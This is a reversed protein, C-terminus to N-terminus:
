TDPVRGGEYLTDIFRSLRAQEEPRIRIFELGFVRGEAWRVEARDVDVPVVDEPLYLRLEMQVGPYLRTDSEFQCGGMSLNRVTDAGSIRCEKLSIPGAFFSILWRVQIRPHKRWEM